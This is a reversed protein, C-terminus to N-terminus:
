RAYISKKPKWGIKEKTYSIDVQLSGVLQNVTSTTGTLYGFLKILAPPFPILRSPKNLNKAISEILEPTSIDNDDSVFLTENSVNPSNICFIVLDILNELSVFSRKNKISKLPLPLGMKILSALKAINGSGFNKYVAPSRIIVVELNSKQSIKRLKKEANLKSMAYLTEPFVNDSIKFPKNNLNQEGNVKASSLYIFRKIGMKAAENALHFTAEVNIENFYKKKHNESGGIDGALGACHIICTIGSLAQTWDTTSNFTDLPFFNKETLTKSRSFFRARINRKLLEESLARGVFGTAGTLGIM